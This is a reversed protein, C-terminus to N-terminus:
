NANRNKNLAVKKLKLEEDKQEIRKREVVKQNEFKDKELQIKTQKIDTDLGHKAIELFDNIGNKNKDIDPNFSAGTISSKVIETKRKEEEKLIILEKNRDHANKANQERQQELEKQQEMQQSQLQLEHQKRKDEAVKLTEEAEVISTQRIVSIVDSFEVKQSQLAAHTLQKITEKTEEIKATNSIFIGITSADLLEPNLKLIHVSMDDLVYSLSKKQNQSYAIKSVDILRQLVNRKLYDHLNFYPELILFSQTLAVRTNSAGAYNGIQGEVQDTIGVSKGCQQRLYEAIEMYKNIDSVLSLDIVKAVTNADAYNKGEESNNYWMYPTSEMFYQWKKIDMGASDPIMDINMLIKKGKDSAMLLELKYWIINYYYQYPKIRDMLSIDEVTGYYPLPCHYINDIDRFQGPIPRKYVYIDNLIKWTEYVEPIWEWELRIDQADKNLKYSEDVIMMQEEMNEDLYYLFGIKRLSKWVCHLVRVGNSNSAEFFDSNRDDSLWSMVRDEAVESYSSYIRDKEANTLEPGFHRIIQSPTMIYECVASEADEIFEIDPTKFYKFYKSNVNWVEPEGNLIGVYMVETGTLLGYKFATNFKRELDCKQILYTLLQQSMVEAPDQHDRQMYKKVEEPTQIEIDKEIQQRIQQQEEKTLEKGNLQEQARMEIEARIPQMITNAVYERIRKAKEQEKRTTAEPNTAVANWSFARKMEMGLIAKIKSSSIDRNIMKAPLEGAEAGFPKCVYEFDKLDLKNNYLDFNVQMRKSESIGGYGIDSNLSETDLRDAMDRYWKKDNANKEAMSLRETVNLTKNKM